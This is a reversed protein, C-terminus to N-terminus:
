AAGSLAEGACSEHFFKQVEHFCGCPDFVKYFEARNWLYNVSNDEAKRWLLFFIQCFARLGLVVNKRLGLVVNEQADFKDVFFIQYSKQPEDKDTSSGQSDESVESDSGVNTEDM